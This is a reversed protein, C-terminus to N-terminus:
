RNMCILLILVATLLIIVNCLNFKNQFDELVKFDFISKGSVSKNVTCNYDGGMVLTYNLYKNFIEAISELLSILSSRGQRANVDDTKHSPLYVNTLLYDNLKLVSTKNKIKCTLKPCIRYVM